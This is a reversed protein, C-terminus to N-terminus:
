QRHYFNQTIRIVCRHNGAVAVAAAAIVDCIKDKWYKLRIYSVQFRPFFLFERYIRSRRLFQQFRHRFTRQPSNNQKSLAVNMQNTNM